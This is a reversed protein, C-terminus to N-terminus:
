RGKQTKQIIIVYIYTVYIIVTVLWLPLSSVVMM